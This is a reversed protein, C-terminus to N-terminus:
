SRRRPRRLAGLGVAVAATVILLGDGAPQGPMQCGCGGPKTKIDPPPAAGDKKEEAPPEAPKPDEKPEDKKPEDAKKDDPGEKKKKKDGAFVLARRDVLENKGGLKLKFKSGINKGDGDRVEVDYEGSMFGRDRRITFDFKTTDWINGKVDGFSLDMSEVLPTVDKGQPLSRTQEGPKSDDMFTEYIVTPTFIFRVPQHAMSPKKGLKITLFVKWGSGSDELDNKAPTVSGAALAPETVLLPVALALLAVLGILRRRVNM